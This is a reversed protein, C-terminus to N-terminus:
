QRISIYAKDKLEEIWTKLVLEAKQNELMNKVKEKVDELKEESGAVKDKVLFIYYGGEVAFPKSPIGAPLSFVFDELSKKLQGKEISGINARKSYQKALDDFKDGKALGAQLDKLADKDEVFISDVALSDSTKFQDKNKEYYDTVEKPSVQSKAKVERQVALYILYQNKLKDRLESLSIGQSMLAQQFATESGARFRIDRIRDEIISDDTKIQLNKAEQLILKDEIMRDLFYKEMAKPDKFEPEAEEDLKAMRTFTDLEDQTIVDGNVVAIIRDIKEARASVTLSFCIVIALLSRGFSIKM